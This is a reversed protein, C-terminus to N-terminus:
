VRQYELRYIVVCACLITELNKRTQEPESLKIEGKNWDALLKIQEVIIKSIERNDM